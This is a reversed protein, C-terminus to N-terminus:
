THDAPHVSIQHGMDKWRDSYTHAVECSQKLHTMLHSTSGPSPSILRCREWSCCVSNSQGPASEDSLSFPLDRIEFSSFDAARPRDVHCRGHQKSHAPLCGGAFSQPKGSIDNTCYYFVGCMAPRSQHSTTKDPSRFRSSM